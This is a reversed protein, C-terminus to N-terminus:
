RATPATSGAAATIAPPPAPPLYLATEDDSSASEDSFAFEADDIHMGVSIDSYELTSVSRFGELQGSEDIRRGFYEVRLPVLDRQGGRLMTLRVDSPLSPSPAANYLQGDFIAAASPEPPSSRLTGVLQWVPEGELEAAYIKFWRYRGYLSRFLEAQGGIALYLTVRGSADKPALPGLAQRVKDLYVRKPPLGDDAISWLVRGDSVQVYSAQGRGSSFRMALKVAGEGAGRHAYQGIGIMQQDFMTTKQQVRCRLSAGFVARHAAKLVLQNPDVAARPSADGAPAMADPPLTAPPDAAAIATSALFAAASIASSLARRKWHYRM